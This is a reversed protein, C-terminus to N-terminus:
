IAYRLLVLFLPEDEETPLNLRFGRVGGGKIYLFSLYSRPEGHHLEYILLNIVLSNYPLFISIVILVQRRRFKLTISQKQKKRGASKLSAAKGEWSVCFFGGGNKGGRGARSNTAVPRM